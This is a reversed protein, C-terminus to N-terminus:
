LMRRLWEDVDAYTSLWEVRTGAKRMREHERFQDPRPREGPAKLEVFCCSGWVSVGRPFSVYTDPAAKRGEWKVKRFMGGSAIVRKKFYRQIDAEKLPKM